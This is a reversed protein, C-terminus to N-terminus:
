NAAKKITQVTYMSVETRLLYDPKPQEKKARHGALHADSKEWNKWHDESEWRIMAVVTEEGRRAKEKMVTVDIFGDQKEIIGEKSFQEIVKHANGEVVVMKRMMIYM